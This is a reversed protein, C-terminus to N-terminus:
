EDQAPRKIHGVTIIKNYTDDRAIQLGSGSLFLRYNWGLEDVDDLLLLLCAATTTQRDNDNIVMLHIIIIRDTATTGQSLTGDALVSASLVM